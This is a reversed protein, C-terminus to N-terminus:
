SAVEDRYLSDILGGHREVIAARRLRGNSTLLGNAFSFPEPARLWRRVQAYGPLRANCAGIARDIAAADADGQSASILAVAYPRAEGYVMVQGIGTKQAIEQEVWEPAV